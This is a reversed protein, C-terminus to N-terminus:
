CELGGDRAVDYRKIVALSADLGCRGVSRDSDKGLGARRIDSATIPVTRDFFPTPSAFVKMRATGAM